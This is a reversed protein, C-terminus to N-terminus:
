QTVRDLLARVAEHHTQFHGIEDSVKYQSTGSGKVKKRPWVEVTEYAAYCRCYDPRLDFGPIMYRFSRACVVGLEQGSTNVYVDGNRFGEASYMM